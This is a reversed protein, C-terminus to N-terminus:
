TAHPKSVTMKRKVGRIATRPSMQRMFAAQTTARQAVGNLVAAATGAGTPLLSKGVTKATTSIVNRLCGAFFDRGKGRQTAAGQFTRM